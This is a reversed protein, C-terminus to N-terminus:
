LPALFCCMLQSSENGDRQKLVHSQQLGEIIDDWAPQQRGWQTFHLSLAAKTNWILELAHM